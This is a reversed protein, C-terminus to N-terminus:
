HEHPERADCLVCTDDREPLGASKIRRLAGNVLPDNPVDDAHHVYIGYFPAGATPKEVVHLKRRGNTAQVLMHDREPLTTAVGALLANEGRTMGPLKIQKRFKRAIPDPIHTGNFNLGYIAM